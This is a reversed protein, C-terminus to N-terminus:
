AYADLWRVHRKLINAWGAVATALPEFLPHSAAIRDLHVALRRLRWEVQEVFTLTRTPEELGLARLVDHEAEHCDHCLGSTLPPDLLRRGGLAGTPHHRRTAPAGCGANCLSTM